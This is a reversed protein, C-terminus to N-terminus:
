SVNESPIRINYLLTGTKSYLKVANVYSFTHSEQCPMEWMKGAVALTEGNNSWDLEFSQFGTDIVQFFTGLEKLSSGRLIAATIDITHFLEITPMALGAPPYECM